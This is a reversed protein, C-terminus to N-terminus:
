VLLSLAGRIAHLLAEFLEPMRRGTEVPRPREV